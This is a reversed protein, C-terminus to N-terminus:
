DAKYLRRVQKKRGLLFSAAPDITLSAARLAERGLLMRFSMKHRATLTLEAAVCRDGMEMKTRIVFREEARGNSSRVKRRECVPAVCAIEIDENKRLPQVKFRVYPAGDKEFPEIDYAHLASTKAGTDVKVRVAPLGLEPLACWEEWGIM